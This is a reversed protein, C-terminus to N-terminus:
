RGLPDDNRERCFMVHYGERVHIPSDVFIHVRVNEDAYNAGAHEVDTRYVLLEGARVVYVGDAREGEHLDGCSIAVIM